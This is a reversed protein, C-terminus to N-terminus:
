PGAEPKISSLAKLQLQVLIHHTNGTSVAKESVLKVLLKDDCNLNKVGSPFPQVFHKPLFIIDVLVKEWNTIDEAKSSILGKQNFLINAPYHAVLRAEVVHQEPNFDTRFRELEKQVFGNNLSNFAALEWDKYDATKHRKDRGYMRNISFPELQLHFKYTLEKDM